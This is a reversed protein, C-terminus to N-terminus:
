FHGTQTFTQGGTTYTVTFTDGATPHATGTAGMQVDFLYSGPSLTQGARLNFQYVVATATSSHSQLITGGFINYQVSFTIGGTNHVTITISLATVPSTNALRIGQDDFFLSNSNVVTTLTVGGSGSAAPNVTLVLGATHTLTGSSGTVTVNAAGVIATSSAAFTLVSGAIP